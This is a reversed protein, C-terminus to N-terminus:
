FVNMLFTQFVQGENEKIQMHADRHSTELPHQIRKCDTMQEIRSMGCYCRTIGVWRKYVLMKEGISTLAQSM